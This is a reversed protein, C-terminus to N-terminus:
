QHRKTDAEKLIGQIEKIANELGIFIARAIIDHGINVEKLTPILAVPLLNRVTLGHGAHYRLATQNIVDACDWLRKLEDEWAQGKSNAYAGTHLEVYDAGVAASAEIQEPEPDIFM